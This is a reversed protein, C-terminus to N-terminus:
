QEFELQPSTLEVASKQLVFGFPARVSGIAAFDAPNMAINVAIGNIELTTLEGAV